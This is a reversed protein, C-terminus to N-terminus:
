RAVEREAEIAQALQAVAMAYLPSHNYRTIVYFNKLTVWYRPGDRAQLEVLAAGTESPLDPWPAPRVGAKVLARLTTHPKHGKAAISRVGKSSFVAAGAIPEGRRWGHRALYNGVSGVADAVSGLLDRKGDGDFDVSYARYSSAIFQPIGMAGAYSGQVSGPEVNGQAALLLFQELERKFFRARKRYNFALTVLADIVRINGQREGFHTEVGLIAVLVAKPVGYTAEARELLAEHHRWFEAGAKIRSETLFIQRYEFWPKSEATRKYADLVRQEHHALALVERVSSLELKHKAAAQRAFADLEANLLAAAVAGSAVLMVACVVTGALRALSM